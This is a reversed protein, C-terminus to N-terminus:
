WVDGGDQTLYLELDRTGRVIRPLVIEDVPTEFADTSYEHSGGPEYCFEDEKARSGCCGM